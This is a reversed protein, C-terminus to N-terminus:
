HLGEIPRQDGEEGVVAQRHHDEGQGDQGAKGEVLLDPLLYLLKEEESQGRVHKCRHTM